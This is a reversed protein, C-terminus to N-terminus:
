SWSGGEGSAADDRLGRLIDSMSLPPTPASGGAGGDGSGQAFRRPEPEPAPEDRVNGTAADRIRANIADHTMTQHGVAVNRRALNRLGDNLQRRTDKDTM